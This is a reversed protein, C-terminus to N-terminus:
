SLYCFLFSAGNGKMEDCNRRKRLSATLTAGILTASLSANKQTGTKLNTEILALWGDDSAFRSSTAARAGDAAHGRITLVVRRLGGLITQVIERLVVAPNPTPPASARGALVVAAIFVPLWYAIMVIRVWYFEANLTIVQEMPM